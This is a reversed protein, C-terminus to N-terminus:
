AARAARTEDETAFKHLAQRAIDSATVPTGGEKTKRQAIADLRRKLPKPVRAKIEADLKKSM